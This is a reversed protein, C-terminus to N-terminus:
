YDFWFGEYYIMTKVYKKSKVLHVLTGAPIEKAVIVDGKVGNVGNLTAKMYLVHKEDTKKAPVVKKIPTKEEEISSESEVSDFKKSTKRKKAPPGEPTPVPVPTPAPIPPTSQDNDEVILMFYPINNKLKSPLKPGFEAFYQVPQRAAPFLEVIQLDQSTM